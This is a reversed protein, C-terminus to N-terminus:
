DQDDRSETHENRRRKKLSSRIARIERRLAQRKSLPPCCQKQNKIQLRRLGTRNGSGWWIRVATGV